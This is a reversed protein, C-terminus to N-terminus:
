NRGKTNEFCVTGLKQMLIWWDKLYPLTTVCAEKGQSLCRLPLTMFEQCLYWILCNTVIGRLKFSGLHFHSKYPYILQHLICHKTKNSKGPYRLTYNWTNQSRFNVCNPPGIKTCFFVSNSVLVHLPWSAWAENIEFFLVFLM